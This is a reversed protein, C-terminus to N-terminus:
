VRNGKSSNCEKCLIQANSLTTTGGLSWPKVHDITIDYWTLDKSCKKNACKPNSRINNWLIRKQTESFLRKSDKKNNFINLLLDTIVTNRTTRNTKSDTGRQVANAYDVIKDDVKKIEGSIYKDVQSYFGLIIESAIKNSIEDNSIYHNNYLNYFYYFLSYFDSKSTLRTTKINPIILIIWEVTKIFTEILSKNIKETEGKLVIDLISKGDQIENKKITILLELLFEELNMRDSTTSLTKINKLFLVIKKYKPNSVINNVYTVWPSNIFKANRIEQKKLPAGLSNINIFLDLIDKFEGSVYIIGIRYKLFNGVYTQNLESYLPITQTSGNDRYNGSVDQSITKYKKSYKYKFITELRQKGDIVDYIITGNDNRQYLFVNPIPNNMLICNILKLRDKINWVSKRQFTPNTNIQDNDFLRLIDDITRTEIQYELPM